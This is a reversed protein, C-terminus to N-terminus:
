GEGPVVILRANGLVHKPTSPTADVGSNWHNTVTYSYGEADPSQLLWPLLPYRLSVSANLAAPTLDVTAGSDFSVTLSTLTRGDAAPASFYQADVGLDLSFTDSTYGANVMLQPLMAASDVRVSFEMAPGIALVETEPPTVQYCITATGGSPIPAEPPPGPLATVGPGLVTTFLGTIQVASELRNTLTVNWSGPDTGPSLTQSFPPGVTSDLTLSVPVDTTSSGVLVADVRGDVGTTLLSAVLGTFESPSLTIQDVIGSDFTITAAPRAVSAASGPPNASDLSLTLSLQSSQPVLPLITINPLGGGAAQQAITELVIPSIWPSAKYSMRVQYSTHASVDTRSGATTIGAVVEAPLDKSVGVFEFKLSPLYPAVSPRSLRFEQPRYYFRDRYLSDQYYTAAGEGPIDVVMPLLIENTTPTLDGPIDFMSANTALPFCFPVTQVVTAQLASIVPSGAVPWHWRVPGPDLIPISTVPVSTVPPQQWTRRVLPRDLIEPPWEPGGRNTMSARRFSPMQAPASEAFQVGVPTVQTFAESPPLFQQSLAAFRGNAVPPAAMELVASQGAVAVAEAVVPTATTAQVAFTTTEPPPVVSMVSQEQPPPMTTPAWTTPVLLVRDFVTPDWERPFTRRGMTATCTIQLQGGVSEDTMARYLADFDAKETIDLRTSRSGDAATTLPGIEIPVVTQTPAVVTTDGANQDTAVAVPLNYTLRVVADHDIAKSSANASPPATTDLHVTLHAIPGDVPDGSSRWKLSTTFRGGVTQNVYAPLYWTVDSEVSDTYLVGTSVTGDTTLPLDVSPPPGPLGPGIIPGTSRLVPIDAIDTRIFQREDSPLAM